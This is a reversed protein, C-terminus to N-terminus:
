ASKSSGTTGPTPMLVDSVDVIVYEDDDHGTDLHSLSQLSTRRLYKTDQAHPSQHPSVLIVSTDSSGFAQLLWPQETTDSPPNTDENSSPDTVEVTSSRDLTCPTTCSDDTPNSTKNPELDEMTAAQPTDAAYTLVNKKLVWILNIWDSQSTSSFPDPDPEERSPESRAGQSRVHYESRHFDFTPKNSLRTTRPGRAM